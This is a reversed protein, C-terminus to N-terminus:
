KGAMLGLQHEANGPHAPVLREAKDEGYEKDEDREEM